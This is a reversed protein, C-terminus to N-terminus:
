SRLTSTLTSVTAQNRLMVTLGKVWIKKGLRRNQQPDVDSISRPIETLIQKFSAALTVSQGTITNVFRKALSALMPGAFAKAGYKAASYAVPALPALATRLRRGRHRRLPYRRKRYYHRPM